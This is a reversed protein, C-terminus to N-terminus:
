RHRSFMSDAMCRTCADKSVNRMQRTHQWLSSVGAGVAFEGLVARSPPVGCWEGFNCYLVNRKAIGFAFYVLSSMILTHLICVPLSQQLHCLEVREFNALWDQFSMRVVCM